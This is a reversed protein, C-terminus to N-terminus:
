TKYKHIWVITHFWEKVDSCVRRTRVTLLKPGSCVHITCINTNVPEMSKLSVNSELGVEYNLLSLVVHNLSEPRWTRFLSIEKLCRTQAHEWIIEADFGNEQRKCKRFGIVAGKYLSMEINGNDKQLLRKYWSVSFKSWLKLYKRDKSVFTCVFGKWGKTCKKEVIKYYTSISPTIFRAVEFNRIRAPKSYRGTSNLPEINCILLLSGRATENRPRIPIM